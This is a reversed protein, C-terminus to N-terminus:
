ETSISDVPNNNAARFTIFSIVVLILAAFGIGPLIFLGFNLGTSYAYGSMWQRIFLYAIPWVILNSVGVLVMFDKSLLVMIQNVSAGLVKRIGIEKTRETAIYLSLGIVGVISIIIALLSFSKFLTSFEQESKYLRDFESDMFSYRFVEEPAYERWKNELNTVAQNVDINDSLKISIIQPQVTNLNEEPIGLFVMPKIPEHLSTFHFDKLVGIIKHPAPQSTILVQEGPAKDPDWGVMRACTENIIVSATDSSLNNDFYRGSVLQMDYTEHFDYDTVFLNFLFRETAPVGIAQFTGGSSQRGPVHFSSAVSSVFPQNSIDKVFSQYRTRLNNSVEVLMVQDKAFGLKQNMMFNMQLVIFLTALVMFISAAFQVVVLINRLGWRKHSLKVGGKFIKVAEFSSMFFAPYLGSLSGVGLVVAILFIVASVPNFDTLEINKGAIQNFTPLLLIAAVVSLVVALFTILISETIFQGILQKKSSGMVKRVGIEKSRKVSNATSLNTFNFCAIGLILIAIISFLVVYRTDGNPEFENELRSNLHISNIPQLFFNHVNGAAVYEQYTKGLISEIQPGMRSELLDPIKATLVESDEANRLKVYNHLSYAGWFTSQSIPLSRISILLDFKFHSRKPVDECIGTVVFKTTDGIEITQNLGSEAGFYKANTSATIVVSNPAKLSEDANGELMKVGFLDFFTSDASAFRDEYYVKDGLKVRTQGTPKFIRTYNEVEPFEAKLTPGLPPPTTSYSNERDPFHRNLAVRYVRDGDPHYSDFGVEDTVYAFILIACCIGLSFGVVNIVLFVKNKILGRIASLFYSKLM